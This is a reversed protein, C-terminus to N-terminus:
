VQEPPQPDLPLAAGFYAKVEEPAHQWVPRERVTMLYDIMDDVMRRGLARMAEWDEPDLSEEPSILEEQRM